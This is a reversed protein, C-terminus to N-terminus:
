LMKEPSILIMSSGIHKHKVASRFRSHLHAAILNGMEEHRHIFIDFSATAKM